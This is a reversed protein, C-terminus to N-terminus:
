RPPREPVGQGSAGAARAVLAGASGGSSSVRRPGDVRVQPRRRRLPRAGGGESPSPLRGALRSASRARVARVANDHPTSAAESGFRRSPSSSAARPPPSRRLHRDARRSAGGQGRAGAHGACPGLGRFASACAIREPESNTPLSVGALARSPCRTSRVPPRLRSEALRDAGACGPAEAASGLGHGEGKRAPAQGTSVTFQPWRRAM